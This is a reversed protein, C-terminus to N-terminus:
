QSNAGSRMALMWASSHREEGDFALTAPTGENDREISARGIMVDDARGPLFPLPAREGVDDAAVLDFVPVRGIDLATTDSRHLRAYGAAHEFVPLTNLFGV